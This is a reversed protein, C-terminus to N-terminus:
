SKKFFFSKQFFRLKVNKCENPVLFFFRIYVYMTAFPNFTDTIKKIKLQFNSFETNGSKKKDRLFASNRTKKPRLSLIQFIQFDLYKKFILDLILLM